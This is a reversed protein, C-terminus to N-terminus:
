FVQPRLEISIYMYSYKYIKNDSSENIFEKQQVNEIKSIYTTSLGRIYYFYKFKKKSIEV